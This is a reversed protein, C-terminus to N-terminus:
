KESESVINSTTPIIVYFKSQFSTNIFTAITDFKSSTSSTKGRTDM